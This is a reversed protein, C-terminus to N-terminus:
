DPLFETLYPFVAQIFESHEKVAAETNFTPSSIRVLAGDSRKRFISDIVMYIRDAYENAIIRGRSHYWYTFLQRTDGKQVIYKNIRILQNSPTVNVTYTESEIPHWGGGPLCHKPSHTMEGEKQDTFYGVYLTVPFGNDRTYTRMFYDDVGFTKLTAEDMAQESVQVWQGIEAPFESLPCQLPVPRVGTVFDLYVFSSILLFLAVIFHPRFM